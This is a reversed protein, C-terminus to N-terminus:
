DRSPTERRLQPVRQSNRLLSVGTKCVRERKLCWYYFHNCIPRWGELTSPYPNSFQQTRLSMEKRSCCYKIFGDNVVMASQHRHITTAQPPSSSTLKINAPGLPAVMNEALMERGGQPQVEPKEGMTGVMLRTRWSAVATPSSSQLFVGLCGYSLFAEAGQARKVRCAGTTGRCSTIFCIQFPFLSEEM